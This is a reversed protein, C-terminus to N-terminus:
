LWKSTWSLRPLGYAGSPRATRRCIFNFDHVSGQRDAQDHQSQRLGSRGLLLAGVFERQRGGIHVPAVVVRADRRHQPDGGAIAQAHVRHNGAPQLPEAEGPRALGLNRFREFRHLVRDLLASGADMRHGARNKDFAGFRAVCELDPNERDLEEVGEADHREVGASARQRVFKGVRM